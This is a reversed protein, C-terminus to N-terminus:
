RLNRAETARWRTAPARCALHTRARMAVVGVVGGVALLLYTVLAWWIRWPPPVVQFSFENPGTVNGAWDRGWVRFTYAGPALPGVKRKVDASWDSPEGDPPYLQTRYRM